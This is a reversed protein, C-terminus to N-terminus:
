NQDAAYTFSEAFIEDQEKIEVNEDSNEVKGDIEIKYSVKYPAGKAFGGLNVGAVIFPAKSEIVFTAGGDFDDSNLKVNQNNLTEDNVKWPINGGNTSTAIVDVEFYDGEAKKFDGSVTVTIKASEHQKIEPDEDKDSCASLVIGGVLLSYFLKKM